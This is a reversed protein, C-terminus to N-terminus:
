SIAAGSIADAAIDRTLPFISSGTARRHSLGSFYPHVAHAMVPLPTGRRIRIPNATMASRASPERPNLNMSRSLTVPGV